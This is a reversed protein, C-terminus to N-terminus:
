PFSRRQLNVEVITAFASPNAVSSGNKITTTANEAVLVSGTSNITAAVSLGATLLVCLLKM